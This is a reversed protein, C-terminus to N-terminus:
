KDPFIGCIMYESVMVYQVDQLTVVLGETKPHVMVTMGEKVMECTPGAATVKLVNTQLSKKASGMLHIGSETKNTDKLPLVVWDRTPKFNLKKTAM